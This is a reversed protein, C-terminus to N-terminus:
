WGRAATGGCMSNAGCCWRRVPSRRSAAGRHIQLDRPYADRPGDRCAPPQSDTAVGPISDRSQERDMGARSLTRQIAEAAEHRERDSGNRLALGIGAMVKAAEPEVPDPGANITVLRSVVAPHHIAVRLSIAGGQSLGVLVATTEGLGAILEPVAAVLDDVSWGNETM